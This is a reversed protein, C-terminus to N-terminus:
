CHKYTIRIAQDSRDAFYQHVINLNVERQGAPITVKLNAISYDAAPLLEYNTSNATNYATLAAQDVALTVNLSFGSTKPSALNVLLPLNTPTSAVALHQLKCNARFIQLCNLRVQPMPLISIGSTM